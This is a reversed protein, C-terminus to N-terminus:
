SAALVHAVNYLTPRVSKALAAFQKMREQADPNGLMAKFDDQSAWQAYNVVQKGDLSAHISVSVFGPQQTMFDRTIDNLSKVLMAQNEPDVEYVNILTALKTAPEVTAKSQLTM